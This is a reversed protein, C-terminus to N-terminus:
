ILKRLFKNLIKAQEERNFRGIGEWSLPIQSHLLQKIAQAILNMQNDSVIVGSKTQRIARAAEGAPPVIALIPKKLRLYEYFKGGITFQSNPWRSDLIICLVNMINLLALCEKHTKYGWVRINDLIDYKRAM